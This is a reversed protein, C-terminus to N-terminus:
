AGELGLRLCELDTDGGGEGGGEAGAKGRCLGAGITGEKAWEVERGGLRVYVGKAIKMPREQQTRDGPTNRAATFADCSFALPTAGRRKGGSGQRRETRSQVRLRQAVVRPPLAPAVVGGPHHLGIGVLLRLDTGQRKHFRAASIRAIVVLLHNLLPTREVERADARACREEHAVPGVASRAYAQM